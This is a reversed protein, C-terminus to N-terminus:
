AALKARDMQACRLLATKLTRNMYCGIKLIVGGGDEDGINMMVAATIKGTRYKEAVGYVFINRGVGPAFIEARSDRVVEYEIEPKLYKKQTEM